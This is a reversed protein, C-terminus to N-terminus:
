AMRFCQLPGPVHPRDSVPPPHTKKESVKVKESEIYVIKVFVGNDDGRM